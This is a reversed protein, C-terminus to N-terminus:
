LKSVTGSNAPSVSEVKDIDFEPREGLALVAVLIGIAATMGWIRYQHGSDPDLFQFNHLALSRGGPFVVVTSHDKEELFLRLPVAFVASVEAPNPCPRFSADVFGVVATVLLGGEVQDPRVGIEEQAERLATCVEDKDSPDSKGGPFCVEGANTRLQESRLTLWAHLEGDKVFLPVLVSAKLLGPHEPLASVRVVQREFRDIVQKKVDM